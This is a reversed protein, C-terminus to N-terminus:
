GRWDFAVVGLRGNRVARGLDEDHPVLVFGLVFGLGLGLGSGLGTM